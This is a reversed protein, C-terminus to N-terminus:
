SRTRFADVVLYTGSRKVVKVTHVGQPLGSIGFVTQQVQRATSTLDVTTRLTGDVYVDATGLDSFKETLFDVGTGNFTYSVSDGNARTYHVDDGYDGYGRGGGYTWAGGYTVGGATDNIMLSDPQTVKVNRVYMHSPLPTSPQICGGWSACGGASNNLILFMPESPVAKTTTCRAVGDVLWTMKGPQWDLGYTHYGASLDTTKFTCGTKDEPRVNHLTMYDTKSGETGLIEFIDVEPLATSNDIDSPTTDAPLMWFAPWLGLGGSVKITAEVKGYLFSKKGQTSIYGARYKHDLYPNASLGLDVEGGALKVQDPHAVSGDPTQKTLYRWIWGTPKNVDSDGASWVSTDLTSGNFEDNILVKDAAPKLPTPAASATGLGALLASAATLAALVTRTRARRPKRATPTAHM